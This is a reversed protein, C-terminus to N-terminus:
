DCPVMTVTDLDRRSGSVGDAWVLDAVVIGQPDFETRRPNVGWKEVVGEVCVLAGVVQLIESHESRSKQM